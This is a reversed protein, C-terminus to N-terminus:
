KCLAFLIVAHQSLWDTMKEAYKSRFSTLLIEIAPPVLHGFSDNESSKLRAETVWSSTRVYFVFKFYM